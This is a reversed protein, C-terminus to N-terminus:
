GVHRILDWSTIMTFCSEAITVGRIRMSKLPPVYMLVIWKEANKLLPEDRCPLLDSFSTTEKSSDHPSVPLLSPDFVCMRCHASGVKMCSPDLDGDDNPYCREKDVDEVFLGRTFAAEKVPINSVPKGNKDSYITATTPPAYDMFCKELNSLTDVNPDSPPPMDNKNIM